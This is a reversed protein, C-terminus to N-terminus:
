SDTPRRPVEAPPANTGRRRGGFQTRMAAREEEDLQGDSNKDFQKLIEERNPFNGGGPRQRREGNGAEGVGGPPSATTLGGPEGAPRRGAPGNAAEGGGGPVREGSVGPVGPLGQGEAGREGGNRGTALVRAVANSDAVPAAEGQAMVAGGLDKEQTDFPPSLL